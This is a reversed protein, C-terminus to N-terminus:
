RKPARPRDVIALIALIAGAGVSPIVAIVLCAILIAIVITLM